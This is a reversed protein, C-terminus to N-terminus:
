PHGHDPQGPTPQPFTLNNNATQVQRASHLYCLEYRKVLQDSEEFKATDIMPQILAYPGV